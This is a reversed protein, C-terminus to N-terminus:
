RALRIGGVNRAAFATTILPIGIFIMNIGVYLGIIWAASSPWQVWILCALALNVIGGFLTWGWNAVHTRFDFAVFIATVGEVMFMAAMILTLVAVGQLPRAILLLGLGIATVAGGVSWWYGPLHRRRILTAARIIGGAFFLWGVLIEISLSFLNPLAVAAFGLLVMVIGTALYARWHLHLAARLDRGAFDPSVHGPLPAAANM